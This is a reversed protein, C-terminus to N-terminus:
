DELGRASPRIDIFVQDNPALKQTPIIYCIDDAKCYRIQPRLLMHLASGKSRSPNRFALFLTGRILPGYEILVKKSIRWEVVPCQMKEDFFQYLFWNRKNDTYSALVNSGLMLGRSLYNLMPLASAGTQAMEAAAKPIMPLAQEWVSKTNRSPHLTSLTAAVPIAEPGDEFPEPKLVLHIALAGDEPLEKRWDWYFGEVLTIGFAWDYRYTSPELATELAQPLSATKAETLPEDEGQLSLYCRLTFVEDQKHETCTAPNGAAASKLSGAVIDFEPENTTYKRAVFDFFNRKAQVGM